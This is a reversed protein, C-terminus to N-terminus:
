FAEIFKTYDEKNLIQKARDKMKSFIRNEYKSLESPLYKEIDQIAIINDVIKAYKHMGIMLLGDRLAVTHNNRKTLTAINSIRNTNINESINSYKKYTIM